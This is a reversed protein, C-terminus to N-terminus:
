IDRQWENRILQLQNNIESESMKSIIKDKLASLNANKKHTKSKDLLEILNLDELDKLLQMAKKNKIGVLLTEM